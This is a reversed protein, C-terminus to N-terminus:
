HTEKHLHQDMDQLVIVVLEVEVETDLLQLLHDQEVVAVEMKPDYFQRSMEDDGLNVHIRNLFREITPRDKHVIAAFAERTMDTTMFEPNVRNVVMESLRGDALAAGILVLEMAFVKEPNM